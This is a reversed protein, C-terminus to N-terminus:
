ALTTKIGLHNCFSAASYMYSKLVPLLMVRDATEKFCHSVTLHGTTKINYPPMIM